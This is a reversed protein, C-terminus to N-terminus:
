QWRPPRAGGGGGGGGPPPRGGGGEAGRGATQPAGGGGGRAVAGAGRGGPARRVRQRRLRDRDRDGVGELTDLALLHLHVHHDDEGLPHLFQGAAGLDRGALSHAERGVGLSTWGHRGEGLGLEVAAVVLAEGVEVVGLPELHQFGSTVWANWPKSRLGYRTLKM